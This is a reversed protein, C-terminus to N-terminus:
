GGVGFWNRGLLYLGKVGALELGMHLTPCLGFGHESVFQGQHPVRTLFEVLPRNQGKRREISQIWDIPIAVYVVVAVVVAIIGSLTIIIAITFVVFGVVVDVVVAIRKELLWCVDGVLFLQIAHPLAEQRNLLDDADTAPRSAIRDSDKTKQFGM